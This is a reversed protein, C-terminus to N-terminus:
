SRYQSRDYHLGYDIFLEENPLITRETVFSVSRNYLHEVTVVNVDYGKPPENIRCLLTSKAFWRNTTKKENQHDRTSLLKMVFPVITQHFFISGLMNANGGYCVQDDDKDNGSGRLIGVPNTPDIIYQSDSFRWIYAECHPYQRLKHSSSQMPILVGPYTGLVTGQPITSVNPACFVGLGGNPLIPSTRVELFTDIDPHLQGRPRDYYAILSVYSLMASALSRVATWLFELNAESPSTTTTTLDHLQPIPIGRLPITTRSVADGLLRPPRVGIMGTTMHRHHNRISISGSTTAHSQHFAFAIPPQPLSQIVVTSVCYLLLLKWWRQIGTRQRRQQPSLDMKKGSRRSRRIHDMRNHNMRNFTTPDHSSRVVLTRVETEMRARTVDLASVVWRNKTMELFIHRM